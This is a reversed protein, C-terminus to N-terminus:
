TGTPAVRRQGVSPGDGQGRPSSLSSPGRHSIESFPVAWLWPGGHGMLLGGRHTQSRSHPVLTAERDGLHHLPAPLHGAGKRGSDEQPRAGLHRRLHSKQTLLHPGVRMLLLKGTPPSVSPDQDGQAAGRETLPCFLHTQTHVRHSCAGRAVSGRGGRPRHGRSPQPPSRRASGHAEGAPLAPGQNVQAAPRAPPTQSM